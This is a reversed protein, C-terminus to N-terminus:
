PYNQSLSYKSPIIATPEQSKIGYLKEMLMKYGDKKNLPKLSAISGTFNPADGEQEQMIMYTEIINLEYCLVEHPDNNGSINNEYETIAGAFDGKKVLTKAALEKAAKVFASDSSNNTILTLYYSRLTSYESTDANMEAHCDLIKSMANISIASDQYNEIVSKFKTIALEYNGTLEQKVAEGFLKQDTTTLENTGSTVKITDYIGHGYDIIINAPPNDNEPSNIINQEKELPDNGSSFGSGGPPTCGYPSYTVSGPNSLSFKGSNPPSDVWDNCRAYYTMSEPGDGFLYKDYGWIFNYGYDLIPTSSNFMYIGNGKNITKLNNKGGDWILEFGSDDPKLRPSSLYVAHVSNVSDGSTNTNYSSDLYMSPSSNYMKYGIQYGIVANQKVFASYSNDFGIGVVASSATGNTIRNQFIYPSSNSISIGVSMNNIANKQVVIDSGYVVSIGTSSISSGSSISNNSIFANDSGSCIVGLVSPVSGSSYTFNCSTVAVDKKNTIEIPSSFTCSDIEIDPPNVSGFVSGIIAIPTSTNQFNCNKITASCDGNLTIGNWSGASSLTVAAGNSIDLEGGDEIIINAGNNFNISMSSNVSSNGIILKGGSAVVIPIDLNLNDTIYLRDQVYVTNDLNFEWAGYGWTIARLKGSLRNFDLKTAPTNPFGSAVQRWSISTADSVFVGADTAIILQKSNNDPYHVMIDNVPADPLTGSINSWNYGGNTSRFVHGGNNDPFYYGSVSLYLINENKPDFEVDTFFRDPIGASGGIVIPPNFDIGEWSSGGDTSKILRSQADTTFHWFENGNGLDM